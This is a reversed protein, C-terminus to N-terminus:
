AEAGWAPFPPADYEAKCGYQVLDPCSTSKDDIVVSGDPATIKFAFNGAGGSNAWLLRIPYYKGKGLKSKYQM